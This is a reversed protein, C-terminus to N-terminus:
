PRSYVIKLKELVSFTTVTSGIDAVAIVREEADDFLNKALMAITNELAFAEVDVVKATLGGIEMAGVRVDVNDSRSAAVIMNALWHTPWSLDQGVNKRIM